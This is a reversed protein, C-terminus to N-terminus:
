GFSRRRGPDVGARATSRALRARIEAVEGADLESRNRLVVRPDAGAFHFAVRYVRGDSAALFTLLDDLEEYGARGADDGSIEGPEVIDVADIEIQGVPTRHRSGAKARASKWRRFALTISGDAIGELTHGPFLM